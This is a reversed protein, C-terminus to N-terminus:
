ARFVAGRVSRMRTRVRGGDNGSTVECAGNADCPGVIKGVHHHGRSCWVVLAGQHADTPSGWEKWNCALNYRPGPDAAVLHARAWIGCWPIASAATTWCVLAVFTILVLHKM